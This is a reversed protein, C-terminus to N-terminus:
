SSEIVGVTLFFFLASTNASVFCLLLLTIILGKHTQTTNWFALQWIQKLKKGKKKEKESSFKNIMYCDSVWVASRNRQCLCWDFTSQCKMAQQVKLGWICDRFPFHTFHNNWIVSSCAYRTWDSSWVPDRCGWCCLQRRVAWKKQGESSPQLQVGERVAERAVGLRSDDGSLWVGAARLGALSFAQLLLDLGSPHPWPPHDGPRSRRLLIGHHLWLCHCPWGDRVSRGYRLRGGPCDFVDKFPIRVIAKTTDLVGFSVLRRDAQKRNAFCPWWEWIWCTGAAWVELCRFVCVRARVCARVRVCACVHCAYVYVCVVHCARM